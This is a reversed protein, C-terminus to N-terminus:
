LTESSADGDEVEEEGDEEGEDTVKAVKIVEDAFKRALFETLNAISSENTSMMNVVELEFFFPAAEQEEASIQEKVEEINMVVSLQLAYRRLIRLLHAEEAAGVELEQQQLLELIEVGKVCTALQQQRLSAMNVPEKQWAADALAAGCSDLSGCAWSEISRRYSTVDGKSLESIRRKPM